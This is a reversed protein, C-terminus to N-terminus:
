MEEVRGATQFVFHDSSLIWESWVAFVADLKLWPIRHCTSCCWRRTTEFIYPLGYCYCCFVISGLVRVRKKRTGCETEIRPKVLCFQRLIRLYAVLTRCGVLYVSFTTFCGHGLRCDFGHNWHKLLRLCQLWKTRFEFGNWINLSFLSKDGSTFFNYM